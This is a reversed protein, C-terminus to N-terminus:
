FLKNASEKPMFYKGAKQLLVCLEFYIDDIEKDIIPNFAASYNSPVAKNMTSYIPSGLGKSVWMLKLGDIRQKYQNILRLNKETDAHIILPAALRIFSKLYEIRIHQAQGKTLLSVTQPLVSRVSIDEADKLIKLLHELASLAFNFKAEVQIPTSPYAM